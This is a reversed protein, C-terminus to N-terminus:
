KFIQLFEEETILEGGPWDTNVPSAAPKEDNTEDESYQLKRQIGGGDQIHLKLYEDM